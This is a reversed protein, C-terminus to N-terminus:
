FRSSRWSILIVLSLLLMLAIKSLTPVPQPRFPPPPTGAVVLQEFDSNNGLNPDFIDNEVTGAVSNGGAAAPANFDIDFTVDAFAALQPLTCTATQNAIVCVVGNGGGSINTSGVPLAIVAELNIGDDPGANAVTVAANVASSPTVQAASLGIDISVDASPNGVPRATGSLDANVAGPAGTPGQYNIALTAQHVGDALPAFAVAVTCTQGQALNQGTCGDNNIVYHVAGPGNISAPTMVLSNAGTNTFTFDQPPSIDGTTVVGFDFVNPDVTQAFAWPTVFFLFVSHLGVLRSTRKTVRM